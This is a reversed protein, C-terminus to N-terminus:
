SCFSRIWPSFCPGRRFTPRIRVHNMKDKLTTNLLGQAAGVIVRVGRRRIVIGGLLRCHQLLIDIIGANLLNEWLGILTRPNGTRKVMVFSIVTHFSLLSFRYFYHELVYLTKNM